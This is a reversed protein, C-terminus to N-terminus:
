AASDEPSTTPGASPFLHTEIAKQYFATRDRNLGMPAAICLDDVYPLLAALESIVDNPTGVLLFQRAMEEPVAAALDDLPAHARSLQQLTRAQEAFGHRAFYSEYQGLQAYTPVSRKADEVAQQPDDNVAARLFAVVRIEDRSRGARGLGRELADQVETKIWQPSWAPHGLLGDGLEASLEVMPARLPALWIPVRSRSPRPLRVGSLDFSYFRGSMAGPPPGDASLMPRIITLLERLRDVPHDYDVGFREENWARVSTGIGLTFRGGSVRDIDIAAMATELPSRVFALAIGSALELQSSAAAVGLTAWPPALLQPVIAGTLGLGELRTTEHSISAASGSPLYAWHRAGRVSARADSNGV